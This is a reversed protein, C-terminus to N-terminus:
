GERRGMCAEIDDIEKILQATLVVPGRATVLVDDEIRVGIGRYKEPVRADDETFYLGPEVTLVVGEELRAPADHGRRYAIGVDHTDIGLYHSTGHFYFAFDLNESLITQPSESLIGLDHLGHAFVERVRQHPSKIHNGVICTEIAEKQAKLVLEYIDRQAPSFRGNVPFTRSIDGAYYEVEAGADILILDGDRLVDRNAEYHLTTAHAGGACISGFSEGMAHRARFAHQLTAEVEWEGMGPRLTKLVAEFGAVSVEAARKMIEIEDADKIRRMEGVIDRVDCFARPGESARRGRHRLAETAEFLMPALASSYTFDFYVSELAFLIDSLPARLEAIDRAEDAGFQDRAGEVGYRSGVWREREPDRPKVFLRFRVGQEASAIVAVAGPEDMGCLYIMNSDPRYAYDQDGSRRAPEPNFFIAVSKEPLARALADRRQVYNM